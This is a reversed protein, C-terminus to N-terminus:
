INITKKITKNLFGSRQLEQTVFTSVIRQGVINMEKRFGFMGGGPANSFFPVGIVRGRSGPSNKAIIMPLNMARYDAATLIRKGTSRRYANIIKQNIRSWKRFQGRTLRKIDSRRIPYMGGPYRPDDKPDRFWVLIKGTGSASPSPGRGDHIFRAWYHPVRILGRSDTLEQSFLAAQLQESPIVPLAKVKGRLLFARLLTLHLRRLGKAM